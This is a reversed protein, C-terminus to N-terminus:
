CEEETEGGFLIRKRIGNLTASELPKTSIEADNEESSVYVVDVLNTKVLQRIFHVRVDIHKFRTSPFKESVAWRIEAQNNSRVLVKHCCLKLVAEKLVGEIGIIM